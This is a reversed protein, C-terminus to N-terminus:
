MRTETSVEVTSLREDQHSQVIAQRVELKLQRAFLSRM